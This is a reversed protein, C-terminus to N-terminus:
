GEGGPRMSRILEEKLDWLKQSLSVHYRHPNVLRRVGPDLREVDALRQQRIQDLTPWNYVVRGDTVVDVLLPEIESLSDPRVSRYLTHDTPHRLTMTDSERPEEGDLTLLDATAKRRQDYLRWVHKYGPNPTKAPTESIKIAPQWEGKDRVAVLKYVGGLAPMGQSTILRTGVGYVLRSILREPDVDYRPAEDQIQTLIQWIVM